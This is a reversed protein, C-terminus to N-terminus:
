SEADEDGQIIMGERAAAALAARLVGETYGRSVLFRYLRERTVPLKCKKEAFLLITEIKNIQPAFHAVMKKVIAANIGKEYLKKQFYLEGAAKRSIVSEIYRSAYEEDNVFAQLRCYELTAAIQAASYKKKKLYLSLDRETHPVRLYSLASSVCKTRVYEDNLGEIEDEDLVAGVRLLVSNAVSYMAEFSAGDELTVEITKDSFTVTRITPM